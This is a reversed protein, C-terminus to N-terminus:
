LIKNTAQKDRLQVAIVSGTREESRILAARNRVRATIVPTVPVQWNIWLALLSNM